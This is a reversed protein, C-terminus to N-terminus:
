ESALYDADGIEHALDNLAAINACQAWQTGYDDEADNRLLVLIYAQPNKAQCQDLKRALDLKGVIEYDDFLIDSDDRICVSSIYESM